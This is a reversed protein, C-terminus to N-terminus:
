CGYTERLAAVTAPDLEGTVALGYTVQFLRLARAVPDGRRRRRTEGLFGLNRLRTAAGNRTSADELKSLDLKFEEERDVIRVRVARADEPVDFVVVGAANTTATSTKGACLLEVAHEPAAPFRLRLAHQQKPGLPSPPRDGGGNIVETNGADTLPRLRPRTRVLASWDGILQDVVRQELESRDVDGYQERLAAVNTPDDLLREVLALADERGQFRLKDKWSCLFGHGRRTRLRTPDGLVSLAHRSTTAFRM